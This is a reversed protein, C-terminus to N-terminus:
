YFAKHLETVKKVMDAHSAYLLLDRSIEMWKVAGADDGASLHFQNFVRGDKDHYNVAVTEM